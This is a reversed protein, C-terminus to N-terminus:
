NKGWRQLCTINSTTLDTLLAVDETLRRVLYVDDSMNIHRIRLTQDVRDHTWMRDDADFFWVTKRKATIENWVGNFTPEQKKEM